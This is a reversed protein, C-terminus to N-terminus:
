RQSFRTPGDKLVRGKPDGVGEGGKEDNGAGSGGVRAEGDGWGSPVPTVFDQQSPERRCTRGGSPATRVTRRETARVNQVYLLRVQASRTRIPRAQTAKMASVGGGRGGGLGRYQVAVLGRGGGGGGGSHGAQGTRQTRYGDAGGGGRWLRRHTHPGRALRALRLLQLGPGTDLARGQGRADHRLSQVAACTDKAGHSPPPRTPSGNWQQLAGEEVGAAVLIGQCMSQSLLGVRKIVFRLGDWVVVFGQCVLAAIKAAM